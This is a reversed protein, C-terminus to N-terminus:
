TSEGSFISDLQDPTLHDLQESAADFVHAAQDHDIFWNIAHGSGPSLHFNLKGAAINGRPRNATVADVWMCRSLYAGFDRAINDCDGSEPVWRVCPVSKGGGVERLTRLAPPLSDLWARHAERVFAVSIPAYERDDLVWESRLLGAAILTTTVEARTV